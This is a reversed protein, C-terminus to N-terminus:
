LTREKCTKNSCANTQLYSMFVQAQPTAKWIQKREEKKQVLLVLLKSGPIKQSFHKLISRPRM